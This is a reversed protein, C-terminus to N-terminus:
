SYLEGGAEETDLGHIVHDVWFRCAYQVDELICRKARDKLDAVDNNMRTSDGIGCIDRKLCEHMRSLFQLAFHTHLARPEVRVREDSCRTSTVFDIFSPHIVRPVESNTTPIDVVAGLDRLISKLSGLPQDLFLGLASVSLPVKLLTIAGLVSRFWEVLHGPDLGNYAADLIQKYLNDLEVFDAKDDLSNGLLRDLQFRPNRISKNRLFRIATAAWIFLGGSTQIMRQKACCPWNKKLPCDCCWEDLEGPYERRIEL